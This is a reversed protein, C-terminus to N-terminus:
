FLRSLILDNITGSALPPNTKLNTITWTGADKKSASYDLILRLM